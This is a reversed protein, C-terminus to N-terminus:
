SFREVVGSIANANEKNKDVLLTMDETMKKTKGAKELIDRSNIEQDDPVNSVERIQTQINQVTNVFTGSAEAIDSIIMQMDKISSYYDKTTKTLEEFQGSIDRKLFIIVQDFCKQVRAINNNTESCITQIKTATEASDTALKGIEGAVVAFGKGADGARAAEISANLSLLNTQETINLIQSVMEEIQMLAQLDGMAKEISRQNETIQTNTNELSVDALQQMQKVKELLQGSQLNGQRIREEVESVVNSIQGIEGDMKDVACNIDETHQAFATTARTTDSVTSILDDSSDQMAVATDNLSRSCTSLTDVMDGLAGYLSNLATAIRGIESKTGIWPKLSDSQSLSLDSLRIIADEVYRMPKMSYAIMVFALVGTVVVFLICIEGLVLMNRNAASYINKETDFSVVIWGQKDIYQFNAIGKGSEGTYKVEGVSEGAETRRMIELLMDDQIETAILSRDDVFIYTGSEANIMYYGATSEKGRMENLTEELNEVLPGGGVYGLITTGDTDFVPCYMSLLLKGTGPSVIIGADYLGNAAVMQDMLFKRPAEDKRFTVGNISPDSHVLCLTTGWEGIYIGEWDELGAYYSETYAQAESRKESNGQNKLFDRVEPTRSYAALLGEQRAVYEEILSTQAALLSRTHIHDSERMMKRLTTNATLYLLGMCIVVIIVIGLTIKRSLKWNKM